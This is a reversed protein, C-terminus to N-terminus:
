VGSPRVDAVRLQLRSVGRYDDRELKFAVDLPQSVDLSPTRGALGWGIGELAGRALDFSVKLGDTGVRRPPAALRVGGSRFLPAPNGIGFPEFHRVLKELDEGVEDIPV